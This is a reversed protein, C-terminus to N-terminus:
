AEKHSRVARTSKASDIETKRVEVLLDAFLGPVLANETELM